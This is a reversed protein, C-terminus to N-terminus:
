RRKWDMDPIFIRHAFTGDWQVNLGAKTLEEVILAGVVPGETEEHLPDMPGFALYLGGGSVVCELDQGHYFCYGSVSDRESHEAFVEQVDAYGDDQTYGANHLAIVGRKNLALFAQELRDCDTVTPWQRKEHELESFAADVAQEVAQEDLEGPEYMEECLIGIIDDREDFGGRVLARIEGLTNVSLSM